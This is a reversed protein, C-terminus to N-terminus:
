KSEKRALRLLAAEAAIRLRSVSSLSLKELLPKEATSGALGLAGIASVKLPVSAQSELIQKAHELVKSEGSKACIQLATIKALEGASNDNLISLARAAVNEKTISEQGQQDTGKNFKQGENNLLAILATGAISSGRENDTADFFLQAIESHSEPRAYQFMCGLHQICYDRWVQDYSKDKYMAVLEDALRHDQKHSSRLASLTENKLANVESLPLKDSGDKKKLFALLADFESEKIDKGLANIAKIRTFYDSNQTEGCIVKITDQVDQAFMFGSVLVMALILKTM